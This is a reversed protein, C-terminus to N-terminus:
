SARTFRRTWIAICGSIWAARIEDGCVAIRPPFGSTDTARGRPRKEIALRRVTRTIEPLGSSLSIKAGGAHNSGFQPFSVCGDRRGELPSNQADRLRQLNFATQREPVRVN